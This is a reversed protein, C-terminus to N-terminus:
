KETGRLVRIFYDDDGVQGGKLLVELGDLGGGMLECLHGHQVRDFVKITLSEADSNRVAYSSSDGGAFVVRQIGAQKRAAIMLKAYVFGILQPPIDEFRARDMDNGRATYVITPRNAALNTMIEPKLVDIKQNVAREDGLELPDLHITAWGSQAALDIQRGTQIACSGSLVLLNSSPSIATRVEILESREKKDALHKGLHQALGQAAVAFVPRSQHREWLASAINELDRNEVGDFIVGAGEALLERLRDVLVDRDRIEPLLINAFRISCLTELHRRLDAEKMPTRPHNSMSPHRDLRVIEAGFKAYHNGFATYRGFDPTAALVVLDSGSPAITEAVYGFNGVQAASDFTSCIKYQLFTCGLARLAEYAPSVEEAIQTNNLARATGAFGVVDLHAAAERLADIPPMKLYLRARLGSRHFQALNESSGTFDDGYFGVLPRKAHM